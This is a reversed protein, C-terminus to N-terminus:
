LSDKRNETNSEKGYAIALFDYLVDLCVHCYGYLLSDDAKILDPTAPTTQYMRAPNKQQYIIEADLPIGWLEKSADM